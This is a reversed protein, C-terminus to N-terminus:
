WGDFLGGDFWEWLLYIVLESSRTSSATLPFLLGANVMIHQRRNVTVQMQPVVAWEVRGGTVLQRAGLIEVMPSWTRGFSGQTFSRGVAARFFAADSRSGRLPIAMGLQGHLFFDQPLIQGATLFPEIITTGTGLGKDANGTPLVVEGAVSVITGSSLSHFLVRKVGVAIDSIGSTWDGGGQDRAVFPIAIEIQNRAGFRREYVLRSVVAGTGELTSRATVVAEDEPYAKETILPRPFNLEGRPWASSECFGRVYKVVRLIEEESLADGFAPMMRSFARVPGGAHVVAAWDADPERTAFSCDTFDPLAEVFGVTSALAGAGDTGHCSACAAHYLARGSEAADQAPLCRPTLSVALLVVLYLRPVPTGCAARSPFAPSFM